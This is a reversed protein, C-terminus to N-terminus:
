AAVVFTIFPDPQGTEPERLQLPQPDAGPGPVASQLSSFRAAAEAFRGPVLRRGM